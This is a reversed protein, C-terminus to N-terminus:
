KQASMSRLYLHAKRILPLNSDFAWKLTKTRGYVVCVYSDFEEWSGISHELLYKIVDPADTCAIVFTIVDTISIDPQKNVFMWEVKEKDGTALVTMVCLDSWAHMMHADWMARIFPMRGFRLFMCLTETDFIGMRQQFLSVISRSLEADKEFSIVIKFIFALKPGAEHAARHFVIRAINLNDHQIAVMLMALFTTEIGDDDVCQEFNDIVLQTIRNYQAHRTLVLVVAKPMRHRRILWDCLAMSGRLGLKVALDLKCGRGEGRRLGFTDRVACACAHSVLTFPMLDEFQLFPIVHCLADVCIPFPLISRKRSGCRLTVM